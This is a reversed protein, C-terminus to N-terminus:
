SINVPIECEGMKKKVSEVDDKLDFAENSREQVDRQMDQLDKLLKQLGQTDLKHQNGRKLADVDQRKKNYLKLISDLDTKYRKLAQMHDEIRSRDEWYDASKDPESDKKMEKLSELLLKIMEPTQDVSQKFLKLDEELESRVVEIEDIM